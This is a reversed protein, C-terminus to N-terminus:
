NASSCWSLFHIYWWTPKRAKSIIHTTFVTVSNHAVKLVVPIPVAHMLLMKPDCVPNWIVFSRLVNNSFFFVLAVFYGSARLFSAWAHSTSPCGALPLWSLLVDGVFRWSGAAGAIPEPPLLSGKRQRRQEGLRWSRTNLFLVKGVLLLADERRDQDAFPWIEEFCAPSGLIKEPSFKRLSGGFVKVAVLLQVSRERKACLDQCCVLDVIKESTKQVCVWLVSLSIMKTAKYGSRLQLLQEREIACPSAM